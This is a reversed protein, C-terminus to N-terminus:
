RLQPERPLAAHRRGLADLLADWALTACQVRIPFRRVGSLATAEGLDEVPADPPSTLLRRLRAALSEVDPITADRVLGTMMSASATAIACATGQFGVDALRDAELRVYVTLRDGCLPNHGEAALAGTIARFNRPNRYHDLIVRQYLGDLDATM